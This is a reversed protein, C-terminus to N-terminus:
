HDPRAHKRDRSSDYGSMWDLRERILELHVNIANIDRRSDEVHSKLMSAIHEIDNTNVVVSIQDTQTTDGGRALQLLGAGGGGGMIFAILAPGGWKRVAQGIARDGNTDPENKPM